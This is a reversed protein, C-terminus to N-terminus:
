YGRVGGLTGGRFERSLDGLLSSLSRPTFLDVQFFGCGLVCPQALIKELRALGQRDPNADRSAHALIEELCM